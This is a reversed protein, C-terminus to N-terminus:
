LYFSRRCRQRFQETGESLGSVRGSGSLPFLSREPLFRSFDSQTKTLTDVKKQYENEVVNYTIQFTLLIAFLILVLVTAVSYKKKM